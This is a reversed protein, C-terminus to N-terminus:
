RGGGEGSQSAEKKATFCFMIVPFLEAPFGQQREEVRLDYGAIEFLAKLYAPSRTLSSDGTDVVFDASADCCNDKVIVAGTEPRLAARIRVLFRVLDLDHLHGICWQIWVVDYVVGSAPQFDQMGLCLYRVRAEPPAKIGQQQRTPLSGARPDAGEAKGDPEERGRMGVVTQERLKEEKGGESLLVEAEMRAARHGEQGFIFSPAAALLRPSPELLDVSAFIPLLLLKTVRGIGAGCDAAKELRMASLLPKVRGELFRRSGAIDTGSVHGFGGLVGDITPPCNGEAEWYAYAQTYWAPVSATEDTAGDVLEAVRKRTTGAKPAVPPELIGVTAWMESLSTYERGDTDNGKAIRGLHKEVKSVLEALQNEIECM